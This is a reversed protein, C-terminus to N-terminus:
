FGPVAREASPQANPTHAASGPINTASYSLKAADGVAQDALGKVSDPIDQECRKSVYEGVKRAVGTGVMAAVPGGLASLGSITAFTIRGRENCADLAEQRDAPTDPHPKIYPDGTLYSWAGAFPGGAGLREFINELVWKASKEGVLRPTARVAERMNGQIERSMPDKGDVGMERAAREALEDATANWRKELDNAADSAVPPPAEKEEKRARPIDTTTPM